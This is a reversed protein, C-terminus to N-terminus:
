LWKELLVKSGKVLLTSQLVEKVGNTFSILYNGPYSVMYGQNDGIQLTTRTLDFHLTISDGAALHVRQFGFLQKILPDDKKQNPSFFALVVEDGAVNGTNTVKVTYHVVQSPDKNDL